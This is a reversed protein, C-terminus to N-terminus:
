QTLQEALAKFVEFNNRDSTKHGAVTWILHANPLRKKLKYATVPPCVMDYRGQVMWVPVTIKSVNDLIYNDPMFCTNGLYHLEIKLADPDFEEYNEPVNRDDISLLSGELQAYAYASKKKADKDGSAIQEYHYRSPDEHHKKPTRNLYSEWVEPYFKRWEGNDIFDTEEQSGTYVGGILLAKLRKQYRLAYALALCSGWSSGMLVFSDLQLKNAIKEIDEVLHETTNAELSGKPTSQGAGRQDFFIVRQMSPDFLMKKSDHTQGGPGGQLHVVPTAADKNGWDHVWLKHGDGVNLYFAKNTYSDETM